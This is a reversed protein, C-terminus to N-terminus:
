TAQPKEAGRLGSSGPLAMWGCEHSQLHSCWGEQFLRNMVCYSSWSSQYSHHHHHHHHFTHTHTPPPPCQLLPNHFSEPPFESQSCVLPVYSWILVLFSPKCLISINMRILWINLYVIRPTPHTPTRYLTSLNTFFVFSVNLLSKFFSHEDAEDERDNMGRRGKRTRECVWDDMVWEVEKGENVNVKWEDSKGYRGRREEGGGNDKEKKGKIMISVRKLIVRNFTNKRRM